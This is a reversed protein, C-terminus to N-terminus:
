YSVALGAEPCICCPGPVAGSSNFAGGEHRLRQLAEFYEGIGLFHVCVRSTIICAYYIHLCAFVFISGELEQNKVDKLDFIWGELLMGDKLIQHFSLDRELSFRVYIKYVCTNEFLKLPKVFGIM